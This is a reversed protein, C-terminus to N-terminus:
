DLLGPKPITVREIATAADAEFDHETDIEDFTSVDDKLYSAVLTGFGDWCLVLEGDAEVTAFAAEAVEETRGDTLVVRIM